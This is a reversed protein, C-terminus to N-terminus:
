SFMVKEKQKDAEKAWAGLKNVWSPHFTGYDDREQKSHQIFRIDYIVYANRNTGLYKGYGYTMEREKPKGNVYFL